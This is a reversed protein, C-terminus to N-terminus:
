LAPLGKNKMKLNSPTGVKLCQWDDLDEPIPLFRSYVTLSTQQANSEALYVPVNEALATEFDTAGQPLYSVAGYVQRGREPVGIIVTDEPLFPKVTGDDDIYTELYSYMELNLANLYGLSRVQPASYRPQYNVFNVANVNASFLWKSMEDNGRLYKEVNKGCLMLTPIVGVAEQIAESAAMLDDFITANAVTWDKITPAAKKYDITAVESVKGDDGFAKVSIKGTTLLEGAMANRRNQLMGLLDKLDRGQTEAAREAPTKTSFLPTEGFSRMTIDEISLVRRAGIMPPKYAQVQSGERSINLGRAGRSVFPALRRGKSITELPFYDATILEKNSFFKDVLYSAPKKLKEAIRILDFTEKIQFIDEM